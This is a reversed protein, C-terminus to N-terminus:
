SITSQSIEKQLNTFQQIAKGSLALISNIDPTMDKGMLSNLTNKLLDTSLYVFFFLCGFHKDMGVDLWKDYKNDGTYAKISYNDGQKKVVPRYLINMIKPWNEDITIEKYQTIDVYAGYSMKSLNPEFGYEVGDITIFRQLGLDTNNIFKSLENRILAYDAVALSNLYTPDLGCLHYLMTATVAVEDDEYNKMDDRFSLYKKLTIDEWSTPISLEIEQVM